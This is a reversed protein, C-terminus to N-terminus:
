AMASAALLVNTAQEKTVAAYQEQVQRWWRAEAEISLLPKRPLRESPRARREGLAFAVLAAKIYVAEAAAQPNPREDEHVDGGAAAVFDEAADFLGPPAYHRLQEVADALAHIRFALRDEIAIPMSWDFLKRMWPVSPVLSRGRFNALSAEFAVDPFAAILDRHLSKLDKRLRSNTWRAAAANSTPISTGVAFCIFMVLQIGATIDAVTPAAPRLAPSVVAGWMYLVRIIIYATALAMAIALVALGIRLPRSPSLRSARGWQYMNALCSTTQLVYYITMYAAAGPEGVHEAVFDSTHHSRDVLTAFVVTLAVAFGLAAAPAIRALKRTLVVPRPASDDSPGYGAAVYIIICVSAAAGAYHELLVALDTIPLRSILGEVVPTKLWLAAAFGAYGACLARLQTDGWRLAAPARWLAVGTILLAVLYDNFGTPM